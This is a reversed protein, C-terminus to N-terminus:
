FGSHLACLHACVYCVVYMAPKGACVNQLVDLLHVHVINRQKWIGVIKMLCRKVKEDCSAMVFEAIELLKSEFVEAVHKGYKRAGVQMADNAIYLNVIQHNADGELFLRTWLDVMDAMFARHELMWHSVTQISQQTVKAHRLLKELKEPSYADSGLGMSEQKKNRQKPELRQM